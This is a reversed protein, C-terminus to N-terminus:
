QVYLKIEKVLVGENSFVENHCIRAELNKNSTLPIQKFFWPHNAFSCCSNEDPCGKGDWVLESIIYQNNDDPSSLARAECYYDDRVFSSPFHGAYRSCPCNSVPNDTKKTYGMGYTWIHIRPTGYTISVGDVYPGDISRAEYHHNAFGDTTGKQYGLVMGCVRSYAVHQTSFQASYCGANDSPARYAAVPSTIKTWGQPCYDKTADVSTVRIWGKEGGCELEMDCYTYLVQGIMLKLLMTLLCEMVPLTSSTFIKVPNDLNHLFLVMNLM